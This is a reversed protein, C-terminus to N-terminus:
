YGVDNVVVHGIGRVRVRVPDAAGAASRLGAVGEREYGAFVLVHHAADLTDEAFLHFTARQLAKIIRLGGRRAIGFKGPRRAFRLATPRLPFRFRGSRTCGGGRLPRVLGLGRTSGGMATGCRLSGGSRRCVLAPRVFGTGIALASFLFSRSIISSPLRINKGSGGKEMGRGEDRNKRGEDRTGRGEDRAGRGGSGQGM